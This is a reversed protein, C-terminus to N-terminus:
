TGSPWPCATASSRCTPTSAAFRRGRPGTTCRSTGGPGAATVLDKVGDGTVDGTAVRVGGRFADDYVQFEAIDEGTKPDIVKVKPIGGDEPAVAISDDAIGAFAAPVARTELGLCHLRFPHTM